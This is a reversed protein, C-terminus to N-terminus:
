LPTVCDPSENRPSNVMPSVPYAEMEDSRYPAVLALLDEPLAAPDLWREHCEGPIIVPMRDHIPAMVSNAATTIITCTRLEEGSSSKWTEHLGAFTFLDGTKLKVFYPSKVKGEKKWEYFGSAPILCRRQKFANRFSPKQHVTEGRANILNNGISPDKAWHPVLGWQYDVLLRRGNNMIVSLISSGPAINYRPTIDTIVEDIFFIKIINSIPEIQAFRGCM